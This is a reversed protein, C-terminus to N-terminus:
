RDPAGAGAAEWLREVSDPLGAFLDYGTLREVSDVSVRYRRWSQAAIEPVNPMVVALLEGDRTTRIARPDSRAPLVLAVKWTVAPITVAGRDHLTGLTGAGGAVIWLERGGRRVLSELHNEFRLWPGGNLAQTQPLINTFLFTQRNDGPTASRENSRVMHGRSYGSRTFDATVTRRWGRPLSGDAFFASTRKADGFHSAALHWAVWNPGGLARSYSLTYASKTMVFDDSADADTPTGPALPDGYIVARTGARPERSPPAPRLGGGRPGGPQASRVRPAQRVAARARSQRERAAARERVTRIRELYIKGALGLVLLLLLVFLRQGCGGRRRRSM